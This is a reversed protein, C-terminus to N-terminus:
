KKQRQRRNITQRTIKLIEAAAKKNGDTVTIAADILYDVAEEVTPFHGFLSVLADPPNVTERPLSDVRPMRDGLLNEFTELVPVGNRYSNMAMSVLTELEPVNGPFSYQMLRSILDAPFPPKEMGLDAAGREAFHNLLFPIDERRERLPPLEVHHDHLRVFLDRRFRGAEVDDSLTSGALVFMRTTERRAVGSGKAVYTRDEMYRALRQQSIDELTEVHRIALTGSTCEQVRGNVFARRGDPEVKEVGFVVEVFEDDNMDKVDVVSFKGEVGSVTHIVRALLSRGTGEEGTILIPEGTKAIAEAYRFIGYMQGNVTVVDSFIEENELDDLIMHHRLTRIESRLEHMEQANRVTRILKTSDIPKVQYDYAGLKMCEVASEVDDNATLVIVPVRPYLRRIERLLEQGTIHPMRLDLIVVGIRTEAMTPLVERSDSMTVVFRFGGGTLAANVARLVGPEDDVVLVPRQSSDDDRM